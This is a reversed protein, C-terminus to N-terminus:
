FLLILVALSKRAKKALSQFAKTTHPKDCTRLHRVAGLAVVIDACSEPLSSDRQLIHPVALNLASRVHAPDRTRPHACVLAQLVELGSNAIISNNGKTPADDDKAATDAGIESHPSTNNTLETDCAEWFERGHELPDARTKSALDM